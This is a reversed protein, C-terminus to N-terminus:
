NIVQSTFYQKLRKESARQRQDWMQITADDPKGTYTNNFEVHLPNGALSRQKRVQELTSDLKASTGATTVREGKK